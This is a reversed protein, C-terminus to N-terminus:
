ILSKFSMHFTAKVLPISDTACYEYMCSFTMTLKNLVHELHQYVERIFNKEARRNYRKYMYGAIDSDVASVIM